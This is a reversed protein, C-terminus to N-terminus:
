FNEGQFLGDSMSIQQQFWYNNKQVNCDNMTQKTTITNLFPSSTRSSSALSSSSRSDITQTTSINSSDGKNEINLTKVNETLNSLDDDSILSAGSDEGDSYTQQIVGNIDQKYL